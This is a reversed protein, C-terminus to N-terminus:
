GRLVNWAFRLGDSVGIQLPSIARTHVLLLKEFMEPSRAFARFIRRRLRASGDMMLMLEGMNRPLSSISEHKKQYEGLDGCAMADALATAQQFALSLGDGTIADASGSADGLLAVRGCTVAKLRRTVTVAGMTRSNLAHGALRKQLEPFSGLAEDLRVHQEASIFAVCVEEAGVPTVYAQEREAWYVEVLPSWPRVKYHCRFGFRRRYVKGEGLGVMPRLFSNQGDACVVYTSHITKGGAVVEGQRVAEVRTGWALQVGARAAAAALMSHLVPRRM